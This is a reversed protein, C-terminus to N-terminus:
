HSKPVSSEPVTNSCDAESKKAASEKDSASQQIIQDLFSEWAPFSSQLVEEYKKELNRQELLLKQIKQGLQDRQQALNALKKAKNAEFSDRKEYYSEKLKEKSKM